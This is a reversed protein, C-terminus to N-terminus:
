FAVVRDARCFPRLQEAAGSREIAQQVNCEGRHEYLFAALAKIAERIEVPVAEAAAGYGAQYDVKIAPADNIISQATAVVHPELVISEARAVFAASEIGYLEVRTVDILNAFPLSIERVFGGARPSLGGSVDGRTPWDWLTLTWARTLLDLGLFQVVGGTAASLVSSLVPDSPDIILWAALDADPVPSVLPATTRASM